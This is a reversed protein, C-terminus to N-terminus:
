TKQYKEYGEYNDNTEMVISPIALLLGELM